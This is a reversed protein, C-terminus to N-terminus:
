LRSGNKIITLIWHYCHSAVILTSVLLLEKKWLLLQPQLEIVLLFTYILQSSILPFLLLFDNWARQYITKHEIHLSQKM